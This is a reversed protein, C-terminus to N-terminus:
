AAVDALRARRRARNLAHDGVRGRDMRLSARGYHWGASTENELPPAAFACGTVPTASADCRERAMWQWGSPVAVCSRIRMGDAASNVNPGIRGGNAKASSTLTAVPAGEHRTAKVFEAITATRGHVSAITDIALGSDSIWRTFARSSEQPPGAPADNNPLFFLDGQFVLRQKPLYTVLMERAHPHPGM